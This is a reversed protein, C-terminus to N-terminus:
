LENKPPAGDNEKTEIVPRVQDQQEGPQQTQEEEPMEEPNEKLNSQGRAFWVLWVAGGIALLLAGCALFLWIRRRTRLFFILVVLLILILGALGLWWFSKSRSANQKQATQTNGANLQKLELPKEVLETTGAGSSNEPGGESFIVFRDLSTGAAIYQGDSSIDVSEAKNEIQWNRLLQSGDASFLYVHHTGSGAVLYKGDASYKLDAIYGSHLAQWSPDKKLDQGGVIGSIIYGLAYNQGDPSLAVSITPNQDYDFHWLPESQGNEFLVASYPDEFSGGGGALLYRGDQSLSVAEVPFNSGVKAVFVPQAQDPKFLYASRDPCSTGAAIYRGDGSIAMARVVSGGSIGGTSVIQYQWVPTASGKQWFTVQNDRGGAALFEGNPAIVLGNLAKGLSHSWLPEKQGIQFLYVVGKLAAALYNNQSIAVQGRDMGLDRSNLDFSGRYELILKGTQLAFLYLNAQDDAAALYQADPSIEVSTAWNQGLDYTWLPQDEVKSFLYIKHNNALKQSYVKPGGWTGCCEACGGPQCDDSHYAPGHVIKDGVKAEFYFNYAGTEKKIGWDAQYIYQVIQGRAKPDKQYMPYDAFDEGAELNGLFIKVYEPDRGQPDILFTSFIYKEAPPGFQPTVAGTEFKLKDVSFNRGDLNQNDVTNVVTNQAQIPFALFLAAFLTLIFILKPM